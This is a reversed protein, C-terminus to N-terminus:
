AITFVCVLFDLYRPVLDTPTFAIAAAAVAVEAATEAAVAAATDAM